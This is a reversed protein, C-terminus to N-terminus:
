EGVRGSAWEAVGGEFRPPRDDYDRRPHTSRDVPQIPTLEVEELEVDGELSRRRKEDGLGVYLIIGALAACSAPVAVDVWWYKAAFKSPDMPKNQKASQIGEKVGLSFGVGLALPFTAILAAGALQPFPAYAIQGGFRVSSKRMLMVGAILMGIQLFCFM